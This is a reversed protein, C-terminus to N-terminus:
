EKESINIILNTTNSLNNTNTNNQQSIEDQINNIVNTTNSNTYENFQKFGDKIEKNNDSILREKKIFNKPIHNIKPITTDIKKIPIFEGKIPDLKLNNPPIYEGTKSDVTGVLPSPSYSQQDDNFSSKSDPEIYIGSKADLYGGSAPAFEKTSENYFGDTNKIKPLAVKIKTITSSEFSKGPM